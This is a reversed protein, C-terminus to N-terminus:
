KNIDTNGINVTSLKKRPADANRRGGQERRASVSFLRAFECSFFLFGRSDWGSCQSQGPGPTEPAEAPQLTPGFNYRYRVFYLSVLGSSLTERPLLFAKLATKLAIRAGSVVSTSEPYM